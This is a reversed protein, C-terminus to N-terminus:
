GNQYCYGDFRVHYKDKCKNCGGMDNVELCNERGPVCSKGVRVFGKKCIQCEGTNGM